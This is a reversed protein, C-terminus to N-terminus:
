YSKVISYMEKEYTPYKCVVYSLTERYYAMPHDNLTLVIGVAYDSSDTEIDFPQQMNPLSIIPSSFLRQKLDDFAQQQYLGWLINEKGGGRTLESLAWAIHSFGLLFRHYLNTLGLFRQIETLTTPTLWDHIVQINSLYV